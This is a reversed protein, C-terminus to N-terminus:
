VSRRNWLLETEISISCLQLQHHMLFAFCPVLWLRQAWVVLFL